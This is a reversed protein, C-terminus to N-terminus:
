LRTKLAWIELLGSCNTSILPFYTNVPIPPSAVEIREKPACLLVTDRLGVHQGPVSSQVCSHSCFHPYWDQGPLIEGRRSSDQM